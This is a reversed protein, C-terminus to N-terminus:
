MCTNWSNWSKRHAIYHPPNAMEYTLPKDKNITIKYRGSQVKRVVTSTHFHRQMLTQQIAPLVQPDVVTFNNNSYM